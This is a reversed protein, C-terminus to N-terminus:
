THAVTRRHSDFADDCPKNPEGAMPRWRRRQRQEGPLVPGRNVLSTQFLNVNLPTYFYIELFTLSFISHTCVNYECVILVCWVSSSCPM